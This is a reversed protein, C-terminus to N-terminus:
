TSAVPHFIHITDFIYVQCTDILYTDSVPQRNQADVSKHCHMLLHSLADSSLYFGQYLTLPWAFNIVILPGICFFYENFLKSTGHKWMSFFYTDWAKLSLFTVTEVYIRLITAVFIVFNNEYVITCHMYMYLVSAIFHLISERLLCQWAEWSYREIFIVTCISSKLSDYLSCVHYNLTLFQFNSIDKM